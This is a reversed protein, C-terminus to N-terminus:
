SGCRATRSHHPNFAEALTQIPSMPQVAPNHALVSALGLATKAYISTPDTNPNDPNTGYLQEYAFITGRKGTLMEYAQLAQAYTQAPLGFLDSEVYRRKAVGATLASKSGWGKNSGYRIEFWVQALDGENLATMLKPGLLPDSNSQNFFLSVLAEWQPTNAGPINAAAVSVGTTNGNGGELWNMAGQAYGTISPYGPVVSGGALAEQLAALSLFDVSPPRVFNTFSSSLASVAVNLYGALLQNLQTELSVTQPQQGLGAQGGPSGDSYVHAPLPNNKIVTEFADVVSQVFSSSQGSFLSPAMLNLVLAMNDSNALNLGIGITPNGKGDDYLYTVSGEFKKLLEALSEYSVTISWFEDITQRL